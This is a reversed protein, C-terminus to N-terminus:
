AVTVAERVVIADLEDHLAEASQPRDDPRKSLTRLILLALAEPVEANLSAPSPPTEELQKAVLTIPSDAVFPTRGTLCEFLVCGAAYVDARFDVNDGLLQEPAMYEPTGIAM